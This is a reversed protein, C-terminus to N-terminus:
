CGDFSRSWPVARLRGRHRGLNGHGASWGMLAGWGNEPLEAWSASPGATQVDGWPVDGEHGSM